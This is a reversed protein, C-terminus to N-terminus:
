LAAGRFNQVQSSSPMGAMSSCAHADRAANAVHRLYLARRDALYLAGSFLTILRCGRELEQQERVSLEIHLDTKWMGVKWLM